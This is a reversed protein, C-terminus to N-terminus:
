SKQKIAFMRSRGEITDGQLNLAGGSNQYTSLRLIDGNVFRELATAKLSTALATATPTYSDYCMVSANTPTGTNNKTLSACRKGTANVWLYNIQFGVLYLGSERITIRTPNTASFMAEGAGNTWNEEFTSWIVDSDANNAISLTGTLAVTCAPLDSDLDNLESARVKQGAAFAM